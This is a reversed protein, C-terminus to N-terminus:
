SSRSSPLISALRPVSPYGLGGDDHLEPRADDRVVGALHPRVQELREAVLDGAGGPPRRARDHDVEPAIARPMRRISRGIRGLAISSSWAADATPLALQVAVVVLQELRAAHLEAWTSSVNKSMDACGSTFARWVSRSATSQRTTGTILSFSVVVM